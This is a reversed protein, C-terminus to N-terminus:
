NLQKSMVYNRFTVGSRHKKEQSHLTTYGQKEFFSQATISVKTTAQTINRARLEKELKKLIASAIGQGQFDKHTYLHDILGEKTTDGFGVINDDIKAVYVIHDSLRRAWRERDMQEPAWADIQEQTYDKINIAHVTDHFLKLIQNLDSLEFKEIAFM